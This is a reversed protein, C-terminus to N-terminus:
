MFCKLVTTPKNNNNLRQTAGSKQSGMSQQLGPKGTPKSFSLDSATNSHTSPQWWYESSSVILKFAKSYYNILFALNHFFAIILCFFGVLHIYNLYKGVYAEKPFYNLHKHAKGNCKHTIHQTILQLTCFPFGQPIFELFLQLSM